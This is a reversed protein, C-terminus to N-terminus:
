KQQVYFEHTGSDYLFTPANYSERPPQPVPENVQPPEEKRELYFYSYIRWLGYLLVGTIIVGASGLIFRILKPLEM